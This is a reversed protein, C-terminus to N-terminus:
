ADSDCPSELEDESNCLISNVIIEASLQDKENRRVQQEIKKSVFAINFDIFREHDKFDGCDACFSAQNLYELSKKYSKCHKHEEARAIFFLMQSWNTSIEWCETEYKNLYHGALQIDDSSITKVSFYQIGSNNFDVGLCFLALFLYVRNSIEQSKKGKPNNRLISALYMAEFFYVAGTSLCPELGDMVQHAAKLVESAEGQKNEKTLKNIRLPLIRSLHWNSMQTEPLIEMAKKFMQDAKVFDKMYFTSVCMESRYLMIILDPDAFKRFAEDTIEAHREWDGNERLEFLVNWLNSCKRMLRKDNPYSKSIGKDILIKNREKVDEATEHCSCRTLTETIHEKSHCVIFDYKKELESIFFDQATHGTSEILKLLNQVRDIRSFKSDNFVILITTHTITASSYTGVSLKSALFSYDEQLANRVSSFTDISSSKRRKIIYLLKANQNRRTTQSLIEEQEGASIVDDERLHDLVFSRQFM